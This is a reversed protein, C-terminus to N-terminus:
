QNIHFNPSRGKDMAGIGQNHSHILINHNCINFSVLFYLLIEVAITELWTIDRGPVKWNPALQFGIWWGDIVIGIGWFTCADVFIGINLLPYLAM